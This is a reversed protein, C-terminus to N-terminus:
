KCGRRLEMARFGRMEEGPMFTGVNYELWFKVFTGRADFTIVTAGRQYPAINQLNRAACDGAGPALM